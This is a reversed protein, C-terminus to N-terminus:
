RTDGPRHPVIDFGEDESPVVFHRALQDFQDDTISFPHAGSANRARLRAKCIADPVDLYHLQHAADAEEAIGRMWSRTAITNAPFDLVVSLGAKLLSVVHPGMVARLKGSGRVYDSITSMEDGYLATLWDDEAIVVTGAAQGLRATLTSKGSAAKGCVLYLTSTTQTM